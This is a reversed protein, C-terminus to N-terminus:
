LCAAIFKLALYAASAPVLIEVGRLRRAGTREPSCRFLSKRHERAGVRLQTASAFIASDISQATRPRHLSKGPTINLVFM